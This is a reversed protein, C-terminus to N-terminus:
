YYHRIKLVISNRFYHSMDIRWAREYQTLLQILKFQINIEGNWQTVFDQKYRAISLIELILDTQTGSTSM